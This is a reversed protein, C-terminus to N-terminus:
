FLLGVYDPGELDDHMMAFVSVGFVPKGGHPQVPTSAADAPHLTYYRVGAAGAKAAVSSSGIRQQRKISHM